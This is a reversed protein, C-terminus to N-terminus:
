QCRRVAGSLESLGSLWPELRPRGAAAAQRPSGRGAAAKRTTSTYLRDINKLRPTRHASAGAGARESTQSSVPRRRASTGPRVEQFATGRRTTCLFPRGCSGARAATSQGGRDRAPNLPIARGPSASRSSNSTKRSRPVSRLPDSLLAAASPSRSRLFLSM